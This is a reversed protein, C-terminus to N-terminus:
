DDVATAQIMVMPSDVTPEGEEQSETLPSVTFGDEIMEEAQSRGNRLYFHHTGPQEDEDEVEKIESSNEGSEQSTMYLSRKERHRLATTTAKQEVSRLKRGREQRSNPALSNEPCDYVAVDRKPTRPRQCPTSLKHM